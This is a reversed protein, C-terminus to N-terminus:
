GAGKRVVKGKKPVWAKSYPTNEVDKKQFIDKMLLVEVEHPTAGIGACISNISCGLETHLRYVIDHMRVAVHNGKARNIRITLMMSEARSLELPVIPVLGGTLLNVEPDTKALTYRHFGDIIEFVKSDDAPDVGVLIPQIWGQAMLSLKLLRMEQPLVVNPNYSNARLDNVDQWVVRSIPHSEIKM